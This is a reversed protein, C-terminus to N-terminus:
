VHAALPKSPQQLVLAHLKGAPHGKALEGGAAPLIVTNSISTVSSIANEAEEEDAGEGVETGTTVTVCVLVIVEPVRAAFGTTVTNVVLVIVAPVAM